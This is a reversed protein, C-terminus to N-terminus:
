RSDDGRDTHSRNIALQSTIAWIFLSIFFLQLGIVFGIPDNWNLIFSLVLLGYVVPLKILLVTAALVPNRKEPHLTSETLLVILWTNIIGFFGGILIGQGIGPRALALACIFAVGTLILSVPYLKKLNSLELGTVVEEERGERTELRYAPEQASCLAAEARGTRFETLYL